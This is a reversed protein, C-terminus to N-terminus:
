QDPGPAEYGERFVETVGRMAVLGSELEQVTKLAEDEPTQLSMSLTTIGYGVDNGSFKMARQREKGYGSLEKLENKVMPPQVYVDRYPSGEIDVDNAYCIKLHEPNSPDFESM